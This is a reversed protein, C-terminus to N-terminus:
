RSFLYVTDNVMEAAHPLHIHHSAIEAFDHDALSKRAAEMDILGPHPVAAPYIYLVGHPKLTDRAAKFFRDWDVYQLVDFAPMADVPDIAM